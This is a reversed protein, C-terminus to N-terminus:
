NAAAFCYFLGNGGTRRLSPNDCGASPHSANWSKSPADDRLGMRDHHGVMASGEGAKTWNGCTMDKDPAPATGDANTGTLVDHMNVVFLRSPVKKGTETMATDVNIKNKDPNHLDDVSAAIVVGDINAWPGKGIRDKANVATKGDMAQQSLYARWTKGGAGAKAAMDQCMKDAGDLGGFNAGNPGPASTVFFTMNPYQPPQPAQAQAAGAFGLAFTAAIMLRTTMVIEGEVAWRVCAM